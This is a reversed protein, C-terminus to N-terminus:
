TKLKYNVAYNAFLYHLSYPDANILEKKVDGILLNKVCCRYLIDIFECTPGVVDYSTGPEFYDIVPPKLETLVSYKPFGIVEEGLDSIAPWTLKPFGTVAQPQKLLFEYVKKHNLGFRATWAFRVNLLHKIFAQIFANDSKPPPNKIIRQLAAKIASDHRGKEALYYVYRPLPGYESLSKYPELSYSVRDNLKYKFALKVPDLVSKHRYSWHSGFTKYKFSVIDKLYPIEAILGILDSDSYSKEEFDCRRFIFPSDTEECYIVASARYYYDILALNQVKISIIKGRGDHYHVDVPSELKKVKITELNLNFHRIGATIEAEKLACSIQCLLIILESRTFEPGNLWEKLSPANVYELYVVEPNVPSIGYVYTFNPIKGCCKNFAYLGLYAEYRTLTSDYYKREVCEVNNFSYLTEELTDSRKLFKIKKMVPCGNFILRTGDLYGATRYMDPVDYPFKEETFVSESFKEEIKQNQEKVINKPYDYDVSLETLVYKLYDLTKDVTLERAVFEVAAEAMNKCELDHTKCWEIREILNSCDYAVPVYHVWPKLHPVFWMKYPTETLLLTCGYTMERSIRFAAVHGELCLVYKYRDAQEQPSIFDAQPYEDVDILELYKSSKHKRPRLNWKTIGADILDSREKALKLCVKLRQNTEVTVGAGTSSGRFVAKALKSDWNKSPKIPELYALNETKNNDASWARIWCDYTPIPVDTYRDATVMSLIPCYSSYNHSLLPQKSTSFIHQYPETDDEKILPFDRQNLFFDIDPVDTKLECLKELMHKVTDVHHGLSVTKPTDYRVLPDNMVWREIPKLKLVPKYNKLAHAKDILQKISKYKKPDVKIKQSWENVYNENSFPLFTIVKNNRIQVFIGKKFKYFLYKFTNEVSKAKRNEYKKWIKYEFSHKEGVKKRASLDSCVTLFQDYSGATYIPSDFYPFRDNMIM